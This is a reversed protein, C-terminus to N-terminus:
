GARRRNDHVADHLEATTRQHRVAAPNAPGPRRGASPAVSTTGGEDGAGVAEVAGDMTEVAVAVAGLEEAAAM